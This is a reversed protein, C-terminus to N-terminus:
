CSHSIDVSVGKAVNRRRPSQVAILTTKRLAVKKSEGPYLWIPKSRYILHITDSRQSWSRTELAQTGTSGGNMLRELAGAQGRASQVIGQLLEKPYTMFRLCALRKWVPKRGTQAASAESAHIKM